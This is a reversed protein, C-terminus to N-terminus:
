VFLKLPSCPTTYRKIGVDFWLGRGEEECGGETTYRKIGVDFWLSVELSTAKCSTTYRKIGVDFWLRRLKIM